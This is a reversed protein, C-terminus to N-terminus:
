FKAMWSRLLANDLTRARGAWLQAAPSPDPIRRDLTADLQARRGADFIFIAFALPRGDRAPFFGALARAFDMTGSKGIIPRAGSARVADAIAGDEERPPLTAMLTPEGAILALLGIMQRPSIRSKSSLGSHNELQFGQWDIAPLRAELWHSLAQSSEALSLTRGTLRRSAALGILEAEGNNSYRLLGGVIESLPPSDVHGIEIASVPVHGPEPAPLAVGAALALQRFVLATHLSTGRVPLFTDGHPPLLRFYQWRDVTGDGAYVFPAGRPLDGPAPAFTIWDCPLILGDAITHVQFILKGAKTRSWTVEVRNFDVNLPGFGANYPTPVPQSASVESRATMLRDDYYFKAGTGDAKAARLQQALAQLDNATLVPDGGGQLYVDAGRRWLTTTFRYDLGLNQAVAYATALKAVSAPMFPQDPAQEALIAGSGLDVLLFGVDSEPFGLDAILKAASGSGASATSSLLALWIVIALALPGGCAGARWFSGASAIQRKM